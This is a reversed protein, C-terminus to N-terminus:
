VDKNEKQQKEAREVARLQSIAFSEIGLQRKLGVSEGRYFNVQDNPVDPTELKATVVESHATLLARLARTVPLQQWKEIEDATIEHGEVFAWAPAKM